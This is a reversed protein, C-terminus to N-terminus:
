EIMKDACLMLSQPITIGLSKATQLNLVLEYTTPQEMPIDGVKAGNLINAVMEAGRRWMWLFDFGYSMLGGAEAWQSQHFMTPLRAKLALEPIKRRAPVWLGSGLVFLADAKARVADAFGAEYDFPLSKFDVVHLPLGLRRATGQVVSLQAATQENAFVAVKSVGPLLEKLLELRKAPLESQVATVGTIHGGPRALSAVYGTTVPDFDVAVFVIPTDPSSYALAALNAELGQGFLVDCKLKALEAALAPLREPKGDAHRREITLNSEIFGLEALRQVFAVNYPETFAAATSGLAGIRYSRVSSQASTWRPAALATAGALTMFERRKM